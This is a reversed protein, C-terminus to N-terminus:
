KGTKDVLEPNEYINGIVSVWRSWCNTKLGDSNDGEVIVVPECDFMGAFDHWNVQAVRGSDNKILDGEYIDLGNRDKIGTYQMVPNNKLGLFGDHLHALGVCATMYKYKENWARFKIERM